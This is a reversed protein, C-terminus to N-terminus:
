LLTKINVFLQNLTNPVIILLTKGQELYKKFNKYKNHHLNLHNKSKIPIM